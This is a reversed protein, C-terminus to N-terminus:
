EFGQEPPVHVGGSPVLWNSTCPQPQFAEVDLHSVLHSAGPGLPQGADYGRVTRTLPPPQLRVWTANRIGRRAFCALRWGHISGGSIQKLGYERQGLILAALERQLNQRADARIRGLSVIPIRSPASLEVSPSGAFAVSGAPFLCTRPDYEM